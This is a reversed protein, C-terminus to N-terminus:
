ANALAGGGARFGMGPGRPGFGRRDGLESRVSEFEDRTLQGDDWAEAFPGDESLLWDASPLNAAEESTLVGDAWAAEHASRRAERQEQLESRRNELWETIATAQEAEIVGDAVMEDLVGGLLHSRVPRLMEEAQTSDDGYSTDDTQALAGLSGGIVLVGAAAIMAMLTKRMGAGKTDDQRTM